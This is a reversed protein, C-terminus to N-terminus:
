WSHYLTLHIVLLSIFGKVLMLRECVAILINIFTNLHEKKVKGQGWKLM